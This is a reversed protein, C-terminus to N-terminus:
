QYQGSGASLRGQQERFPGYYCSAYKASYAMIKTYILGHAELAGRIIGIRGDMMDSPAVIDAGAQAQALMQKVLMEITEDNLIFGTEDILGDQGHTTYPDLAVDCM